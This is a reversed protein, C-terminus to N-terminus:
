FHREKRIVKNEEEEGNERRMREVRNVGLFFFSHTHLNFIFM